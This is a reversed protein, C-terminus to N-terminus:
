SLKILAFLKALVVFLLLGFVGTLGIQFFSPLEKFMDFILNPINTFTSTFFQVGNIFSSFLFELSNVFLKILSGCLQIFEGM